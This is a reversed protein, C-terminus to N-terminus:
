LDCEGECSEQNTCGNTPCYCTHCTCTYCTPCTVVCSNTECSPDCNTEASEGGRVKQAKNGLETVFSAVKLEKLQLKKKKPM